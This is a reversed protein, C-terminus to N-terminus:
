RTPRPPPRDVPQKDRREPPQGPFDPETRQASNRTM